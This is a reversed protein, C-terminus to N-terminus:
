EVNLEEDTEKEDTRVDDIYIDVCAAKHHTMKEVQKSVSQQIQEATGALDIGYRMIVRVAIQYLGNENQAVSIGATDKKSFIGAAIGGEKVAVVGPVEKTAHKVINAIVHLNIQIKGLSDPDPAESVTKLEEDPMQEEEELIENEEM